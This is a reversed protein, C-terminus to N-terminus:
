PSPPNQGQAAVAAALKMLDLAAQRLGAATVSTGAWFEVGGHSLAPEDGVGEEPGWTWDGVSVTPLSTNNSTAAAVAAALKMLDLAAQRLGAATVDFGAWFELGHHSLGAEGEEGGDTETSWTWDGVTIEPIVVNNRVAMM